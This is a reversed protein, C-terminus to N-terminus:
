IDDDELEYVRVYDIKFEANEFNTSEDPNGPWIGGVALAMVFLTCLVGIAVGKGFDSKKKQPVELEGKGRYPPYNEQSQYEQNDM